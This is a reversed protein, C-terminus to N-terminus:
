RRPKRRELAEAAQALRLAIRAAARRAANSPQKRGVTRFRRALERLADADLKLM